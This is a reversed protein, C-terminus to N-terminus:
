LDYLDEPNKIKGLLYSKRSDVIAKFQKVADRGLLMRFTMNHRCTLTVEVNIKKNGIVVPTLIVYRKEREGNSSTVLREELVKATCTRTFHSNKQLPHIDFQVFLIGETKFSQINYAHLASTKAGTDVMARIAPLNLDPLACYEQWGILIESKKM